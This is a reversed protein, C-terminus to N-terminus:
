GTVEFVVSGENSSRFGEISTEPSEPVIWAITVLAVNGSEGAFM